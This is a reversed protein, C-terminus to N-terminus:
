LITSVMYIPSKFSVAAIPAAVTMNGTKIIIDEIPKINPTPAPEAIERRRPAPSASLAFRIAAVAYYEQIVIPISKLTKPTIFM